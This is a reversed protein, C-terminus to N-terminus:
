TRVLKVLPLGHWNKKELSPPLSTPRILTKQYEYILLAFTWNSSFPTMPLLRMIRIAEPRPPKPRQVSIIPVEAQLNLFM